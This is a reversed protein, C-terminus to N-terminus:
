WVTSEDSIANLSAPWIAIFCASSCASGTSSSGIMSTVSDTGSRADAVHDAVEVAPAPPRLPHLRDAPIVSILASTGIDSISM